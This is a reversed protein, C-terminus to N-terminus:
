RHYRRRMRRLRPVNGTGRSRAMEGLAANNTPVERWGLLHQGEDEVIGAFLSMAQDRARENRSAFFLGVGYRGPKPLRIGLTACSRMFFEHPLQILIGAGDGTNAEAGTAGRHCLHELATIGDRVLQHSRQGKIHAIFGVGCSDHEYSADYLGQVSPTRSQGM